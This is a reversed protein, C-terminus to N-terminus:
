EVIAPRAKLGINLKRLEVKLLDNWVRYGKPNLHLGDKLFLDKMPTGFDGLMPDWINLFVRQDDAECQKEIAANAVAMRDALNWRAISPKIAVYVMSTEPLHEHVLDSFTGYDQAVQVASKGAAIDNDGAYFVIVRPKFPWVIRDAFHISDDIQSGGFGHNIAPLGPFSEKLDWMRISSSGVFLVGDRPRPADRDAEEFRHIAAEWRAHRDADPKKERGDLRVTSGSFLCAALILIASSRLSRM